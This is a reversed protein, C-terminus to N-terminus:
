RYRIKIGGWSDHRTPTIADCTHGLHQELFLLDANTVLGDCDFDATPDGSGLKATAIAEDDPLVDLSGNQDPSALSRTALLVGDAYIKVPAGACIGGAHPTFTVRGLADTTLESLCTDAAVQELQVGTFQGIPCLRYGPCACWDLRVTSNIVPNGAIDRVTVHFAIDGFPCVVLCPDVSSNSPDPVSASAVAVLSLCSAVVLLLCRYWRFM